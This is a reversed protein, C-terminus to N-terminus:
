LAGRHIAARELSATLRTSRRRTVTLLPWPIPASSPSGRRQSPVHADDPYDEAVDYKGGDSVAATRLTASLGFASTGEHCLPEGEEADM